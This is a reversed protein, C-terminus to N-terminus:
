KTHVGSEKPIPPLPLGKPHAMNRYATLRRAQTRIFGESHSVDFGGAIDMSAIDANYLTNPSSRGTPNLNRTYNM